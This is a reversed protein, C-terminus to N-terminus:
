GREFWGEGFGGPECGWEIVPHVSGSERKGQGRHQSEGATVLAWVGTIVCWRVWSARSGPRTGIWAVREEDDGGRWGFLCGGGHVAVADGCSEPNGIPGPCARQRGDPGEGRTGHDARLRASAPARSTEPCWLGPARRHAPTATGRPPLPRTARGQACVIKRYFQGAPPQNTGSTTSPLSRPTRRDLLSSAIPSNEPSSPDDSHNVKGGRLIGAISSPM